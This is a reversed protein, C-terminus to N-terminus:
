RCNTSSEINTDQCFSSEVFFGSLPLLELTQRHGAENHRIRGTSATLLSGINGRSWADPLLQDLRDPPWGAALKGLVDTLYTPPEVGHMACTGTLRYCAAQREAAEDSGAFLFDSSTFQAGQDTNFIAPDGFTELAEHLSRCLVVHGRVPV